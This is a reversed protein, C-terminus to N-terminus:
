DTSRTSWRRTASRQVRETVVPFGNGPRKPVEICGDSEVEFTPEVSHEVDSSGLRRCTPMFPSAPFRGLALNFGRGIGTELMGGCWTPVERRVCLDHVAVSSMLGGSASGQHERDQRGEPPACDRTVNVSSASEDLCLATRLREQLSAMDVLADGPLPQEIMLLGLDDLQDWPGSDLRYGCNGDVSLPLTPFATKVAAAPTVDWGPAIKLKIRGFGEEVRQTVEDLLLDITDHIPM